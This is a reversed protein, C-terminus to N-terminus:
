EHKKDKKEINIRDQIEDDDLYEGNCLIEALNSWDNMLSCDHLMLTYEAINDLINVAETITTFTKEFVAHEKKGITEFVPHFRITYKNM